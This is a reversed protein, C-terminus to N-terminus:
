LAEQGGTLAAAQRHQADKVVLLDAGGGLLARGGREQPVDQAADTQRQALVLLCELGHQGAAEQDGGVVGVGDM